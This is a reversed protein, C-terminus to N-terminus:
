IHPCQLSTHRWIHFYVAPFHMMIMLYVIYTRLKFGVYPSNYEISCYTIFNTMSKHCTSPKSQKSRNGGGIFSILFNTLFFGLYDCITCTSYILIYKKFFFVLCRLWTTTFPNHLIRVQFFFYIFFFYFLASRWSIASINNFTAIFVVVLFVLSVISSTKMKFIASISSAPHLAITLWDNKNRALSIPM